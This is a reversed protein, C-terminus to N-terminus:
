SRTNIVYNEVADRVQISSQDDDVGYLLVELQDPKSKIRFGPIIRELTQLLLHRPRVLAPCQLFYHVPSQDESGCLKCQSPLSSDVDSDNLKKSPSQESLLRSVEQYHSPASFDYISIRGDGRGSIVALGCLQSVTIPAPCVIRQMEEINQNAIIDLVTTKSWIVIASYTSLMVVEESEQLSVVPSSFVTKVSILSGSRYICVRGKDDGVLLMESTLQLLCTVRGGTFRWYQTRVGDEKNFVQRSYNEKDLVRWVGLWGDGGGVLREGCLYVSNISAGTGIVRRLSGGGGVSMEVIAVSSVDSSSSVNNIDVCGIAATNGLISMCRVLKRPLRISSFCSKESHCYIRIEQKWSGSLIFIQVSKKYSEYQICAISVCTVPTGHDTVVSLLCNQLLCWLQVMKFAVHWCIIQPQCQSYQIEVSSEVFKKWSPSVRASIKITFSDLYSFVECVIHDLNHLLLLSIIDESQDCKYLTWDRVM